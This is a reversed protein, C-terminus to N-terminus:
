FYPVFRFLSNELPCEFPQSVNFFQEADKTMLSISIVVVTLNRRVGTLIVLILLVFSLEHQRPHSILTVNM